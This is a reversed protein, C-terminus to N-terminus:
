AKLVGHKFGSGNGWEPPFAQYGQRPKLCYEMGTAKTAVGERLCEREATAGM